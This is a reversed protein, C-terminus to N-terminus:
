QVNELTKSKVKFISRNSRRGSADYLAHPNRIIVGECTPSGINMNTLRTVLSPGRWLSVMHYRVRNEAPIDMDALMLLRQVFTRTLDIIDFVCLRLSQIKGALVYSLVRDHNSAESSHTCLEADYSYPYDPTWIGTLDICMGGRTWASTGQVRVRIGDHKESYVWDAYVSPKKPVVDSILQFAQPDKTYKVVYSPTCLSNLHKCNRDRHQTQRYKYSKCSCYRRGIDVHYKNMQIAGVLVLSDTEEGSVPMGSEDMHIECTHNVFALCQRFRACTLRKVVGVDVLVWTNPSVPGNITELHVDVSAGEVRRTSNM